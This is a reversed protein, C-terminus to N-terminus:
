ASRRLRGFVHALWQMCSFRLLSPPGPETDREVRIGASPLTQRDFVMGPETPREDVWAGSPDVLAAEARISQM